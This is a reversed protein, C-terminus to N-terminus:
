GLSAAYVDIIGNQELLTIAQDLSALDVRKGNLDFLYLHRNNSLIHLLESIDDVHIHALMLEVKVIKIKDLEGSYQLDRVADIECGECDLKLLRICSAERTLDSLLLSTSTFSKWPVSSGTVSERVRFSGGANDSPERFVLDINSVEAVAGRVLEVSESFNNMRLSSELLSLSVPNPEIAIVRFDAAAFDIACAGINAGVDIILDCSELHDSFILAEHVARRCDEIYGDWKIFDSVIDRSSRVCLRRNPGNFPLFPASFSSTPCPPETSACTSLLHDVQELKDSLVIPFYHRRTRAQSILLKFDNISGSLFQQYEKYQDFEKKWGSALEELRESVEEISTTQTKALLLFYILVSHM